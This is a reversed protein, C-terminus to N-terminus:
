KPREDEDCRAVAFGAGMPWKIDNATDCFPCIAIQGVERTGDSPGEIQICRRCHTCRTRKTM